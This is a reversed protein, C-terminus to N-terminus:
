DSISEKKILECDIPCIEQKMKSTGDKFETDGLHLSNLSNGNDHAVRNSILCKKGKNVNEVEHKLNNNQNEEVKIISLNMELKCAVKKTFDKNNYVDVGEKTDLGYGSNMIGSQESLMPSGSERKIQDTHIKNEINATMFTNVVGSYSCSASSGESKCHNFMKSDIESKNNCDLMEVYRDEMKVNGCYLPKSNYYPMTSAASPEEFMPINKQLLEAISIMPKSPYSPFSEASLNQQIRPKVDERMLAKLRKKRKKLPLSCDKDINFKSEFEPDEDIMSYQSNQLSAEIKMLLEDDQSRVTESKALSVEIKRLIEEERFKLTEAETLSREIKKLLEEEKFKLTEADNLSKAIRKLLEEERSKLTETEALSEEIRRFIEEGTNNLNESMKHLYKPVYDCRDCGQILDPAALCKDCSCRAIKEGARKSSHIHVDSYIDPLQSKSFNLIGSSKEGYTGEVTDTFNNYSIFSNRNSRFSNEDESSLNQESHNYSSVSSEMINRAIYTNSPSYMSRTQEWSSREAQVPKLIRSYSPNRYVESNLMMSCFRKDSINNIKEDRGISIFTNLKNSSKPFADCTSRKRKGIRFHNRTNNENESNHNKVISLNIPLMDDSLTNQDGSSLNVDNGHIENHYNIDLESLVHENSIKNINYNNENDTCSIYPCVNNKNREGVTMCSKIECSGGSSREFSDVEKIEEKINHNSYFNNNVSNQQHGQYDDVDSLEQKITVKVDSCENIATDANSSTSDISKSEDPIVDENLASNQCTCSHM